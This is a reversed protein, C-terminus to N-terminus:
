VNHAVGFFCAKRNITKSIFTGRSDLNVKPKRQCKDPDCRFGCMSATKRNSRVKLNDIGCICYSGSHVTNLMCGRKPRRQKWKALRLFIPLRHEGIVVRSSLPSILDPAFNIEISRA